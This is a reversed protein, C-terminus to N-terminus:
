GGTVAIPTNFVGNSITITGGTSTSLVASFAGTANMSGPMGASAITITCNQLIAPVGTFVFDVYQSMIGADSKCDYTGGLPSGYAVVTLGVGLQNSGGTVIEFFDQTSSTMHTAVVVVACEPTGNYQWSFVAGAPSLASCAGAAADRRAGGAGGGDGQDSNTADTNGSSSGCAAFLSLFLTLLLAGYNTM